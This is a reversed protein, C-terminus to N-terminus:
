GSYINQLFISNADNETSGQPKPCERKLLGFLSKMVLVIFDCRTNCLKVSSYELVNRPMLSTVVHIGIHMYSM